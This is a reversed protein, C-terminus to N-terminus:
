VPAIVSVFFVVTFAIANLLPDLGLAKALAFKVTMWGKSKESVLEPSLDTVAPEETVLVILAVRIDPLM